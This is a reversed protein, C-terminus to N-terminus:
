IVEVGKLELKFKSNRGSPNRKTIVEKFSISEKPVLYARRSPRQIEAWYVSAEVKEGKHWIWASGVGRSSDWWSTCGINGQAHLDPAEQDVQVVKRRTIEFIKSALSKWETHCTWVKKDPDEGFELTKDCTVFLNGGQSIVAVTFVVPPPIPAPSYDLSFLRVNNWRPDTKYCDEKGAHRVQIERYGFRDRCFTVPKDKKERNVLFPINNDNGAVELRLDAWRNIREVFGDEWEICGDEPNIPLKMGNMRVAVDMTPWAEPYHLDM